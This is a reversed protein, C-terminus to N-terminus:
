GTLESLLSEWAAIEAEETFLSSRARIAEILTAYFREDRDVRDLMAALASADGVPFTGPYDAGLMGMNGPIESAITPRGMAIAEGVANAGGEHRSPHILGQSNALQRLAEERPKPGVWQYRPIELRAAEIVPELEAEMLDGLHEVRIPSEAPLLGCARILTSPDKVARLHGLACWRHPTPTTSSLGPELSVSQFVVRVKARVSEPLASKAEAQLVVLRSAADLSTRTAADLPSDGYLDTGALGVVLPRDPHRDHFRSIDTALKRAHLAILIDPDFTGLDEDIEADFGMRSLLRLWRLATVRNGSGSGPLAPSLILIRAPSTM